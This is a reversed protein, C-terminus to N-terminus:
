EVGCKRGRPLLKEREWPYLAPTLALAIALHMSVASLGCGFCVLLLGM